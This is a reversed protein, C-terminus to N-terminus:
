SEERGEEQLGDTRRKNLYEQEIFDRTIGFSELVYKLLDVDHAEEFRCYACINYPESEKLDHEKLKACYDSCYNKECVDCFYIYPDHDCVGDGCGDRNCAYYSM